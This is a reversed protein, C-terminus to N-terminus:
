GTPALEWVEVRERTRQRRGDPLARGRAKRRLVGIERVRAPDRALEAKIPHPHDPQVLEVINSFVLVLRGGPALRPLAREVFRAVLDPDESYLAADLPSGVPGVLWPPNFVIVDALPGDAPLLDGQWTRIPPPQPRRAVERRVSHLANPNHDTALVDEFGARALLLALVGSGTGVDIARGRAGKWGALWTAFLELHDTRTPAYTGWFPHLRHGLVALHVGDEHLRSARQLERLAHVPLWLRDREPYLDAILSVKPADPLGIRGAEVPALLGDAATTYRQRWARKDPHPATDAPRPLREDLADLVSLAFAWRGVRVPGRGALLATAVDAPSGDARTQPARAPTPRHLM